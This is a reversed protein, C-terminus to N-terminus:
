AGRFERFADGLACAKAIPHGLVLRTMEKVFVDKAIPPDDVVYRITTGLLQVVIWSAAEVDMDAPRDPLALTYGRIMDGILVEIPRLIDAGSYGPLQGSIVRLIEPRELMADVQAEIAASVLGAPDGCIIRRLNTSVGELLQDTHEAVMATVIANKNPFYQYLSGPSIGAEAAIRNTTLGDYGREKLVHTAAKLIRKVTEKSRRQTPSKRAFSDKRVILSDKRPAV